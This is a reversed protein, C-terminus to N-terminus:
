LLMDAGIQLLVKKNGAPKVRRALLLLFALAVSTLAANAYIIMKVMLDGNSQAFVTRKAKYSRAHVAQV